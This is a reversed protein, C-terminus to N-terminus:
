RGTFMEKLLKKMVRDHKSDSIEPNLKKMLDCTVTDDLLIDIIKTRKSDSIGPFKKRLNDWSGKDVNILKTNKIKM